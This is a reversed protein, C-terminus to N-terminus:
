PDVQEDAAYDRAAKRGLWAWYEMPSAGSGPRKAGLNVETFPEGEAIPELAVLSRRAVAMNKEESPTPEKVGSGIAAEVARIGAVMGALQDAELSAQHDPGPLACDLTFHKEIVSAGLGAAAIAVATGVTHDSLGVPMGFARAMTEMVRLNVEDFPAPYETTCHLLILRRELAKRGPISQFAQDFAAPSPAGGGETCGFALVGLAAEVEALDSMGTSLIIDKGTQAAALLLPGNTVDGSSVKIPNLDLRRAVFDLSAPDFPTSMMDIGSERCRDKLRFHDDESLRLGELMRRQSEGKGTAAAQYPAKPASASVLDSTRFTQFKVADAGADAAVDIMELARGMNGNHNVGVEAIVFVSM